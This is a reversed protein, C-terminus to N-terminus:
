IPARENKAPAMRCGRPLTKRVARWSPAGGIPDVSVVQRHPWCQADVGVSEVRFRGNVELVETRGMTNRSLTFRLAVSDGIRLLGPLDIYVKPEGKVASIKLLTYM